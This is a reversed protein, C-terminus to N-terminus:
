VDVFKYMWVGMREYLWIDVCRYAWVSECVIVSIYGYAWVATVSLDYKISYLRMGIRVTDSVYVRM